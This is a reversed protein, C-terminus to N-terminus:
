EGRTPQSRGGAETTVAEKRFLARLRVIVESARNGDRITRRATERAGDLDPSEAALMRLCTNANTIIGSLPQNIEHAISATLEGITAVRTAHALAAQAHRLEEQAQKWDHMDVITGHWKTIRGEDDRLPLATVVCLRFTRDAAHWTRVEVRYPPGTAVCSMWVPHVRAADDPHITKQWGDGMVQDASFGTYELFRTNCYEIDGSAAASWLMEPITETMQRLNRESARIADDALKRDDIDALLVYWRAVHGGTDRLPHARLQFWRYVGDFRRLRVEYAFPASSSIGAAFLSFIRPVDDAHVIGNSAWETTGALQPGLYDRTRENELEVIGAETLTVILGPISDVILRSERERERLADEAVKREDIDTLLVCWRVVDGNADRIPCGSNQFWHYVGDARRLRQVIDYPQGSAISRTFIEIVHPLDEPHVLDSTGWRKLEELTAGTYQLIQPNVLEVSGAADLLAVLGPISDVILRSERESERLADEARKRDEIDTLLVCWGAIQGSPGRLPFSSNQFWRYIGDSRRLRHVMEYPQAAAFSESSVQAVHARDDPHINDNTAWQKQEDLTRGTYDLIQHNVFELEGAATLIAILGPISDVVLRSNRESERLAEDALALERRRQVVREEVENAIGFLTEVSTTVIGPPEGGAWLGPRTMLSRLEALADRLRTVEEAPSELPPEVDPRGQASATEVLTHVPYRMPLGGDEITERRREEARQDSNGRARRAASDTPRRVCFGVFPARGSSRAGHHHAIGAGPEPYTRRAPRQTGCGGRCQVRTPARGHIRRVLSVLPPESGNVRLRRPAERCGAPASDPDPRRPQTGAGSAAGHGASAALRERRSRQILRVLLLLPRGSGSGARTGQGRDCPSAHRRFKMWAANSM